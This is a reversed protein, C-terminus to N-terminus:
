RIVERGPRPQFTSWVIRVSIAWSDGSVQYNGVTKMVGSTDIARMVTQSVPGDFHLTWVGELPTEDIRNVSAILWPAFRSIRGMLATEASTLSEVAPTAAAVCASAEILRCFTQCTLNLHQFPNM